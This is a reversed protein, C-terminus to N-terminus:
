KPQGTRSLQLVSLVPYEDIMRPARDAPVDVGHLPGYAVRLDAIDEGGACRKNTMTINAGMETLTQYFGIRTPNVLVSAITLESGPVVLAAAVLFAASSPDAPITVNQGHLEM